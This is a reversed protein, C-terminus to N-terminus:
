PTGLAAALRRVTAAADAEALNAFGLVLGQRRPHQFDMRSLAMPGLGAAMARGELALDDENAEALLQLGGGPPKLPFRAGFTEVFASALASRRAKYATRMRKVHRAYHGSALFDAVAAQELAPRGGDLRRVLTKFHALQSRPAVLYGLRLGPFLTKSFTGVYFVRDQGDLSKLAPLPPGEYRFEGAYDDEVIWAGTRAAWDLLAIRRRLSLAVGTPFQSSPAVICLAAAGARELGADVDLGEADVPVTVLRGGVARVARATLPYGPNEIWAEDGPRLLARCILGLAPLYGGTIIIQEAGARIGRAIALYRAVATRLAHDGLPDPYSLDAVAGRRAHRAVLQSWLTRPFLDFSPLGPMLPRPAAFLGTYDEADAEPPAAADAPAVGLHASAPPIAPSVVTDRRDRMVVYGEGALLAYATDVTARSVKLDGALARASPLRDGPGLRGDAISARIRDYVERYRTPRPERLDTVPRSL